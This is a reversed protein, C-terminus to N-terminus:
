HLFSNSFTSFIVSPPISLSEFLNGQSSTLEGNTSANLYFCSSPEMPSITTM